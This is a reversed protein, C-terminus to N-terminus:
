KLSGTLMQIWWFKSWVNCLTTMSANKWCVKIRLWLLFGRHLIRVTRWMFMSNSLLTLLGKRSFITTSWCNNAGRWLVLHVIRQFDKFNRPFYYRCIYPKLHAIFQKYGLDWKWRSSFFTHLSNEPTQGPDNRYSKAAIGELEPNQTPHSYHPQIPITDWYWM